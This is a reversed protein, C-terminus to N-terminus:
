SESSGAPETRTLVSHISGKAVRVKVEPAIEVVAIDDGELKNITGIIGGATVVKDGRRLEGLMKQHERLKKQQPRILLLYLVLLMGVMLVLSSVPSPAAAAPTGAVEVQTAADQAMAAASAMFTVIAAMIARMM